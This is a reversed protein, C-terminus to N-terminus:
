DELYALLDVKSITPAEALLRDANDMLASAIPGGLHADPGADDRFADFTAFHTRDIRVAFWAVTQEEAAALERASRLLDEVDDERGDKAHTPRTPGRHAHHRRRTPLLSFGLPPPHGLRHSV